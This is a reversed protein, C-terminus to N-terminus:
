TLILWLELDYDGRKVEGSIERLNEPITLTTYFGRQNATLKMNNVGLARLLMPVAIGGTSNVADVV